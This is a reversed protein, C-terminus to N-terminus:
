VFKLDDPLSSVIKRSMEETLHVRSLTFANRCNECWVAGWGYEGNTKSALYGEAFKHGGCVPCTAERGNAFEKLANMWKQRNSM